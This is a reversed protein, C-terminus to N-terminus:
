AGFLKFPQLPELGAKAIPLNRVNSTIWVTRGFLSPKSPGEAEIAAVGLAPIDDAERGQNLDVESALLVM